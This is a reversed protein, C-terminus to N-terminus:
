SGIPFRDNYETCRQKFIENELIPIEWSFADSRTRGKGANERVAPKETGIGVMSMIKANKCIIFGTRVSSIILEGLQKPKSGSVDVNVGTERGDREDFKRGTDKTQGVFLTIIMVRKKAKLFFFSRM